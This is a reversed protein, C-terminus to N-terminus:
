SYHIVEEMQADFKLSPELYM